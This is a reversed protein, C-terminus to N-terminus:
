QHRDIRTVSQQTGLTELHVTSKGASFSRPTLRVSCRNCRGLCSEVTPTALGDCFYDAQYGDLNILMQVIGASMGPVIERQYIQQAFHFASPDVGARFDSFRKPYFDTVNPQNAFGKLMVIQNQGFLMAECNNCRNSCQPVQAGDCWFASKQDLTGYPRARITALAELLTMGNQIKGQIISDRFRPSDPLNVLQSPKANAPTATYSKKLWDDKKEFESRPEESACASLLVSLPALIYLLTFLTPKNM